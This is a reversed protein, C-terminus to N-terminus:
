PYSRRIEHNDITSVGSQQNRHAEDVIKDNLKSNMKQLLFLIYVWEIILAITFTTKWVPLAFWIGKEEPYLSPMSIFIACSNWLGHLASASLLPKWFADGKALQMASAYGYGVLATCTIHILATASRLLIAQLWDASGIQIVVVASEIFAFAGGLYLGLMYGETPNLSRKQLLWLVAPKLSEELFPIIIGILLIVGVYFWANRFLQRFVEAFFQTQIKDLDTPLTFNKLWSQFSPRRNLSIFVGSLVFILLTLEIFLIILVNYSAGFSVVASVRQKSSSPLKRKAFEIFWWIPIGTFVPTLYAQLAHFFHEAIHFHMFVLLLAWFFLAVSACLFPSITKNTLSRPQNQKKLANMMSFFHVASLLVCLSGLSLLMQSTEANSPLTPISISGGAFCSAAIALTALFAGLSLIFTMAKLGDQKSKELTM